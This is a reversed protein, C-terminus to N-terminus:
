PRFVISGYVSPGPADKHTIPLDHEVMFAEHYGLQAMTSVFEARNFVWAALRKHPSNTQQRAYTPGDTFPTLSVIFFQPKLAALRKLTGRWDNVYQISSSASVVAEHVVQAPIDDAVTIGPIRGRLAACM